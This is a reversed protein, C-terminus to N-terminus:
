SRGSHSVRDAEPRRALGIGGEHALLQVSVDCFHRRVLMREWREAPAPHEWRRGLVRGANKAIRLFGSPGRRALLRLKDRILRRDRAGFSLTFMMDCLVLRGGPVLVRRVESLALEKGADDLHHFAYNSVALTVSEDALPLCRLDGVLQRVNGLNAAAAKQSLRDLMAPSLDVATVSRVAPALALTLLGTGAGLDVVEDEPNPQALEYVLEALRRFAPSEAIAEWSEVRGDWAAGESIRASELKPVEHVSVHM